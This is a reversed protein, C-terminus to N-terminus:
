GKHQNINSDVNNDADITIETGHTAMYVNCIVSLALLIALLWTSIVWPKAVIKSLAILREVDKM